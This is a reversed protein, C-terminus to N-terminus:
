YRPLRIFTPASIYSTSGIKLKITTTDLPPVFSLRLVIGPYNELSFREKRGEGARKEERWRERKRERPFVMLSFHTYLLIFSFVSTSFQKPVEKLFCRNFTEM